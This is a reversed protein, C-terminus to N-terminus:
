FIKIEGEFWCLGQGFNASYVNCKAVTEEVAIMAASLIAPVIYGLCTMKWYLNKKEGRFLFKKKNLQSDLM